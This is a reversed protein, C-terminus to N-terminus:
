SSATSSSEDLFSPISGLNTGHLAFGRGVTSNNLGGPSSKRVGVARVIHGCGCTCVGPWLLLVAFFPLTSVKCVVDSPDM